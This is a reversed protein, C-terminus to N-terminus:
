MSYHNKDGYYITQPHPIVDGMRNDVQSRPERQARVTVGVQVLEERKVRLGELFVRADGKEPCRSGLFKARMETQAYAGKESYEKVVAEWREKVTTKAYIRMLTSDPLRQTLLSIASYEDKDWQAKAALEDTTPSSSLTPVASSGDFHGWFGKAQIADKFRVRFIAWNAGTPDLKPISSPLADSLSTTTISSSM